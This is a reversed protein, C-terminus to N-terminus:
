CYPRMSAWSPPFASRAVMTVADLNSFSAFCDPIHRWRAFVISHDSMEIWCIIDVCFKMSIEHAMEINHNTCQKLVVSFHGVGHTYPPLNNDM